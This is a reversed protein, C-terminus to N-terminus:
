SVPQGAQSLSSKAINGTGPISMSAPCIASVPPGLAPVEEALPMDEFDSTGGLGGPTVGTVKTGHGSLVPSPCPPQPVMQQVAPGGTRSNEGSMAQSRSGRSHLM